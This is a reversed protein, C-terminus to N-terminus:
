KPEWHVLFHEKTMKGFCKTNIWKKIVNNLVIVILYWFDFNKM